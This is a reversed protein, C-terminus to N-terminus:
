IVPAETYRIILGGERLNETGGSEEKSCIVDVKESATKAEQVSTKLDSIDKLAGANSGDGLLENIKFIGNMHEWSKSKYVHIQGTSKDFAIAGESPESITSLAEQNEVVSIKGEGTLLTKLSKLEADVTSEEGFKVQEAITAPYIPTEMSEIFASLTVNKADAM